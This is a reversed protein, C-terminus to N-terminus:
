SSLVIVWLDGDRKLGKFKLKDGLLSRRFVIKGDDIDALAEDLEDTEEYGQIDEETIPYDNYFNYIEILINELTTDGDINIVELEPHESSVLLGLSAEGDGLNVKEELIEEPIYNYPNTNVRWDIDKLIWNVRRFIQPLCESGGCKKVTYVKFDTGKQCHDASVVSGEGKLQDDYVQKSAAFPITIDSAELYFIRNGSTIMESLDQHPIYYRGFSLDLRYFLNDEDVFGIVSLPFDVEKGEEDLRFLPRGTNKNTTLCPYRGKTPDELIQQLFEGTYCDILYNDDRKLILLINDRDESLYDENVMDDNNIVDYCKKQNFQSENIKIEEM